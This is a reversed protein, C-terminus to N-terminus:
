KLGLQNEITDIEDQDKKGEENINTGPDYYNSDLM